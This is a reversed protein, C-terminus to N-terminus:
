VLELLEVLRVIDEDDQLLRAQWAAAREAAAQSIAREHAVIREVEARDARRTAEDVLERKIDAPTATAPSLATLALQNVLGQVEADSLAAPAQQQAVVPQATEAVADAAAPVTLQSLDDDRKKKRVKPHHRRVDPGGGGSTTTAPVADTYTGRYLRANPYLTTNRYTTTGM